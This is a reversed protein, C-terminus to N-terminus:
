VSVLGHRIALHALAASTAVGLKEKIVTQHNSVTKASLGLESACEAPSCGQALLRFVERERESLSALRASEGLPDRGRLARELGEGLYRRGAHLAHVADVLQGPESAKSLYGTAGAELARQVMAESEHMSFVLIRLAPDHARARRILELGGGPMALDTVLVEPAHAVLAAFAGDADAAEHVVVIDHAQELLRRYGTRVVPHDDALLVRIM